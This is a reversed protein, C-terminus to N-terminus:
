LEVIEVPPIPTYPLLLLYVCAGAQCANPVDSGLRAAAANGATMGPASGSALFLMVALMLRIPLIQLRSM